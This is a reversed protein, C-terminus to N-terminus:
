VKLAEEVALEESWAAREAGLKAIEPEGLKESLGTM